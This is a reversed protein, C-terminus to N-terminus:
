PHNDSICRLIEENPSIYDVEMDPLPKTEELM